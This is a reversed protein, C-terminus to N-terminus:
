ILSGLVNKALLDANSAGCKQALVAPATFHTQNENEYRQGVQWGTFEFQIKDIADTLVQNTGIISINLLESFLAPMHGTNGSFKINPRHKRAIVKLSCEASMGYLHSANALRPTPQHHLIEADRWHRQAADQYDDSM